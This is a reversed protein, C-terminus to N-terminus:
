ERHFHYPGDVAGWVHEDQVDYGRDWSEIVNKSVSVESTAYSAGRLNSSCNKGDTSGVFDDGTPALFVACGAKLELDAPALSDFQSPDRWAGIVSDPEPILYVESKLRGDALPVLRYVRQRYPKDQSTAIAQEVYLWRESNREAGDSWIPQMHLTVHYYSDDRAAQGASSFSGTMMAELRDLNTDDPQLSICGTLFVLFTYCVYRKKFSTM